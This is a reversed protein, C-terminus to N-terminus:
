PTSGHGSPLGFATVVTQRPRITGFLLRLRVDCESSRRNIGQLSATVSHHHHSRDM